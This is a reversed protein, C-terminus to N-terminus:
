LKPQSIMRSEEGNTEGCLNRQVLIWNKLLAFIKCVRKNCPVNTQFKKKFKPSLFPGHANGTDPFAIQFKEKM